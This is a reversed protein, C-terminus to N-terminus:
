HRGAGRYPGPLGACVSPSHGSTGARDLDFQSWRAMRAEGCRVAHRYLRRLLVGDRLPNRGRKGAAVFDRSQRFDHDAYILPISICPM